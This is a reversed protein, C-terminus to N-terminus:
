RRAAFWAHILGAQHFRVPVEFGAAAVLGAVTDPPLVGVDRAYAARVRALADDDLGAASMTRMWLGLIAPYDAATTDWALDASALVGGPRVRRAIRRFFDTRADIDLIFQSVLFCTAGDFPGDDPLTDLYGAHFRCRDAIGEADARARCAAVMAESPDLAAFTWGPFVRALHVLEAGTGVGVCLLRANAPLPAFVAELLLHLAERVPAMRAWQRDYGAAQQDFLAKLEDQQM